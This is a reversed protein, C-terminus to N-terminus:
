ERGTLEFPGSESHIITDGCQHSVTVTLETPKNEGIGIRWEWRGFYQAGVPRSGGAKVAPPKKPSYGYIFGVQKWLGDIKAYGSESDKIYLCSRNKTGYVDLM